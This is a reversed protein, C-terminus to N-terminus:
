LNPPTLTAGGAGRGEDIGVNAGIAQARLPALPKLTLELQGAGELKVRQSAPQFGPVLAEVLYEGAPLDESTAFRGNGDVPAVVVRQEGGEGALSVINVRAEPSTVIEGAPGKLQGAVIPACGTMALLLGFAKKM